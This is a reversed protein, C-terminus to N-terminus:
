PSPKHYKLTTVQADAHGQPFASQQGMNGLCWGPCRFICLDIIIIVTSKRHIKLDLAVCANKKTEPLERVVM